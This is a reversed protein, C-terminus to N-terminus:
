EITSFQVDNLIEESEEVEGDDYDKSEEYFDNSYLISAEENDVMRLGQYKLAKKEAYDKTTMERNLLSALM